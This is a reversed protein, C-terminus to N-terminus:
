YAYLLHECTTEDAAVGQCCGFVDIAAHIRLIVEACGVDDLATEGLEGQSAAVGLRCLFGDVGGEAVGFVEVVLGELLLVVVVLCCEGLLELVFVNDVLGAELAPSEPSADYEDEQQSEHGGVDNALAKVSRALAQGGLGQQPLLFLLHVFLLVEEVFLLCGCLTFLQALAVTHYLEQFVENELARGDDLLESGAAFAM